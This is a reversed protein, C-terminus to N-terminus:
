VARAHFALRSSFSSFAATASFGWFNELDSKVETMKDCPKRVLAETIAYAM